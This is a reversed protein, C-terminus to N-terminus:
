TMHWTGKSRGVATYTCSQIKAIAGIAALFCAVSVICRVATPVATPVACPAMWAIVLQGCIGAASLVHCIM